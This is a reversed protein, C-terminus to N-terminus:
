QQPRQHHQREDAAQYIRHAVQAQAPHEGRVHRAVHDHDPERPRARRAEGGRRAEGREGREQRAGDACPPAAVARASAPPQQHQAKAVSAMPPPTAAVTAKRALVTADPAPRYVTIPTSANAIPTRFAVTRRIATGSMVVVTSVMVRVPRAASEPRAPPVFLPAARRVAATVAISMPANAPAASYRCMPGPSGSTM